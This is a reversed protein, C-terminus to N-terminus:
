CKLKLRKKKLGTLISVLKKRDNASIAKELASLNKKFIRAAIKLNRRNTLFIDAWIESDSAAIRTTDKLGSAAFKLNIGPVAGILSFAALHPLHSVFSLIKDHVCPNLFTTKAGLIEWLHRIKKLARANTKKTPTLICLSGEFLGEAANAISRKESGALPHSGAYNPFLKELSRVIEEKTSGVDTVICDPGTLGSIKGALGIVTNVPVALIVLDAGKVADIKLSGKDIAGKRKALELTKNHRSIGIIEGALGKKKLGLGISGGILGVGVIAVKNFLRM